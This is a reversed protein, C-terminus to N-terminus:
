IKEPLELLSQIVLDPKELLLQKERYLAEPTMIAVTRCGLNKGARVDEPSDGVIAAETALVGMNQLAMKILTEKYSLYQSFIDLKAEGIGLDDCTLIVQFYKQLGIKELFKRTSETGLWGSVLALLIGKEDLTRLADAVGPYVKSYEMYLRPAQNIVERVKVEGVKMGKIVKSWFDSDFVDEKGPPELGARVYLDQIFAILMGSYDIITGDRDFVVARIM